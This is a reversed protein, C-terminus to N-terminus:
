YLPKTPAVAVVIIVQTYTARALLNIGPGGVSVSVLAVINGGVCTQHLRVDVNPM